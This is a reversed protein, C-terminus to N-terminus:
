ADEQASKVAAVQAQAKYLVALMNPPMSPAPEVREALRVLWAIEEVTWFAM